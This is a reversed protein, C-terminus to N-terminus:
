EEWASIPRMTRTRPRWEVAVVIRRGGDTEGFALYDTSRGRRNRRYVPGKAIVQDIEEASVGHGTAHALNGDDWEIAEPLLEPM